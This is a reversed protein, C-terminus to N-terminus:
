RADALVLGALWSREGPSEVEDGRGGSKRRDHQGLWHRKGDTPRTGPQPGLM